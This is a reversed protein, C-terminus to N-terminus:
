SSTGSPRRSAVWRGVAECYKKLDRERINRLAEVRWSIEEELDEPRERWDVSVIKREEARGAGRRRQVVLLDLATLDEDPIGMRKIRRLAEEATRGHMTAYSGKGQGALMTDFLARVEEPRRVEGVVVRDPRMRLTDYVLEQMSVDESPVLRVSHSHPVEIEPTEEVLVIREELPVFSLLANLTTTKGSGTNGAIIINMEEDVAYWMEALQAPTATGNEILDWPTFRRVTFRRITLAHGSSLPPVVAHLRSGDPLVANVRPNKLTIRRGVSVAFRNVVNTFYEGNWFALNTERWGKGRLYVRIPDRLRVTAIEEIDEQQLFSLPGYEEYTKKIWWMIREKSEKKITGQEHELGEVVEEWTFEGRLKTYRDVVEKLIRAEWLSIAPLDVVYEGKEFFAWGLAGWIERKEEETYRIEALGSAICQPEDFVSLCLDCKFAKGEKISIASHPCAGACEGCGNCLDYDVALVGEAIEYIAGKPCAAACPASEPCCHRCDSRELEYPCVDKLGKKPEVRM